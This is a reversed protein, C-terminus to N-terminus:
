LMSQQIKTVINIGVERNEVSNHGNPTNTGNRANHGNKNIVQVCISSAASNSFSFCINRDSASAPVPRVQLGVASLNIIAEGSCGVM